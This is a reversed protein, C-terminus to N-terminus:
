EGRNKILGKKFLEDLSFLKRRSMFDKPLILDVLAAVFPNLEPRKGKKLEKYNVFFYKLFGKSDIIYLNKRSVPNCVVHDTFRETDLQLLLEKNKVLFNFIKRLLSESGKFSYCGSTNDEKSEIIFVNDNYGKPKFCCANVNTFFPVILFFFVFGLQKKIFFM